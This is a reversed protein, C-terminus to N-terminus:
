KEGLEKLAADLEEQSPSVGHYKAKNEFQKVGKGKVTRAVIMTPKGKVKGAVSLAENIQNFDHGDVWLTHWGFAHWKEMIPEIGMIDHVFGDIQLDNYDIFACINDIKYHASTMAAEWVQGEQTEGDGLLVYIRNDRNDLRNALAMGNAISLGQGLSGTSIEVGKTKHMDPHGQLLSDCQRLTDLESKPFYGAKSLVAYLLPAAHGKSLIFRDRDKMIPNQPDYKMWRFYLFVLIEVASLSGGTHGSGARTLMKLIDIRIERAINKLRELEKSDFVNKDVEPEIV